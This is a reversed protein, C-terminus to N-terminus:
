QWPPLPSEVQSVSFRRQTTATNRTSYKCQSFAREEGGQTDKWDGKLSQVTGGDIDNWTGRDSPPDSYFSITALPGSFWLVLQERVTLLVCVPTEGVHMQWTSVSHEVMACVCYIRPVNSVGHCYGTAKHVSRCCKQHSANPHIRWQWSCFLNTGVEGPLFNEHLCLLILLLTEKKNKKRKKRTKNKYKSSLDSIATNLLWLM